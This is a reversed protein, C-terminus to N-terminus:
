KGSGLALHGPGSEIMVQPLKTAPKAERLLGHRRLGRKIKTLMRANYEDARLMTRLNGAGGPYLVIPRKPHWQKWRGKKNMCGLTGRADRYFQTGNAVWARVFGPPVQSAGEEGGTVLDYILYAGVGLGLVGLAAKLENPLKEWFAGTVAQGGSALEKFAPVLSPVMAVVIALVKSLLAVAGQRSPESGAGDPPEPVYSITMASGGLSIEPDTAIPADLHAPLAAGAWISLPYAVQVAGAPSALQQLRASAAAIQAMSPIEGVAGVEIMDPTPWGLQEPTFGVPLEIWNQTTYNYWTRM